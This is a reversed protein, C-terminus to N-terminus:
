LARVVDGTVRDEGIEAAHNMAKTLLNNVVLPYLMSM